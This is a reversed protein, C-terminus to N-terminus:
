LSRGCRLRRPACPYRRLSAMVAAPPSDPPCCPEAARLARLVPWAGVSGGHPDAGVLIFRKM